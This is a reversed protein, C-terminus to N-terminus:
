NTPRGNRLQRNGNPIVGLLRKRQRAASEEKTTREPQLQAPDKWATDKGPAAGSDVYGERIELFAQERLKTLYERIQSQMRSGVLRKNIENEGAEFPAQGAEHRDEIKFIAFGSEIEIIDTIYGKKLQPWAELLAPMVEDKKFWGIEGSNKASKSDSTNRALEPFKERGRARALIDKARKDAAALREPTKGMSSILIERLLIEEQQVFEEKHGDYYKQLEANPITIKGGVELWVVRQQLQSNRREQRFDEYSMGSQERLWARFRDPDAIKADVTQIDAWERTVDPDVNINLEKGRQILLLSDILERLAHTGLAQRSRELEARTIIEGNVKAVIQEVIQVDAASLNFGLALFVAVIRLEAGKAIPTGSRLDM